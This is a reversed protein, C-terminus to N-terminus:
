RAAESVSDETTEDAGYLNRSAQKGALHAIGHATSVCSMRAGSIVGQQRYARHGPRIGSQLVKGLMLDASGRM